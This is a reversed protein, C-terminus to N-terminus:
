QLKARRLMRGLGLPLLVRRVHEPALVALLVAATVAATLAGATLRLVPFSLGGILVASIWAMLALPVVSILIMKALPWAVHLAVAVGGLLVLGRVAEGLGLWVSGYGGAGAMWSAFVSMGVNSLFAAALLMGALGNRGANNLLRLLILGLTAAWLGAAIGRLSGSTLAVATQDFAGRQFIVSVIDNAFVALFVSAPLAVSLVLGALTMIAPRDQPLAGKYLVAMGIPQAIILAASETLTRAYDLSALTGVLMGSGVLREVWGHAQEVLPQALLPRLRRLFEVGAGVIGALTAGRLTIKGERRLIWASWLAMVNFSLAFSWPLFGLSGTVAYAGIGASVFVNVLGARMAAIRSSGHAIDAAALCNLVVAAPMMAAMIRVFELAIRQAEASFGGVVAGIWASGAFLVLLMMVVAALGLAIVVEGLKRAGHADDKWIRCLPILIAPTSENLLPALPLLVATVSGRFSDAIITAGFTRAMLVERIFGLIKSM